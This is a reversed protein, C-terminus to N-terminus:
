RMYELPTLCKSPASFKASAVIFALTVLEEPFRAYQDEVGCYRPLGFLRLDLLPDELKLQRRVFLARRNHWHPPSLRYSGSADTKRM